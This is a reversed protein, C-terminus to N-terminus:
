RKHAVLIMTTDPYPLEALEGSDNNETFLRVKGTYRNDVIWDNLFTRSSEDVIFGVDELQHKWDSFSWYCFREHMESFWSQHYDKTEIFDAADRLALVAYWLGDREILKYDIVDGEEARFDKAFRKFIGLTSLGDLYTTYGSLDSKDSVRGDDDHGDEHNLWLWVIRDGDEPGVVDVNIYAGGPATQEYIQSIFTLLKERGLYSEVEHTLSFSTTTQISNDPFLKSQMINRQYFYVSENGFAGNNKAQVCLEYLPRAIEIGFIDSERLREDYSM